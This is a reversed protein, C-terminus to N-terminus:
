LVIDRAKKEKGILVVWLGHMLRAMGCGVDAKPEPSIKAMVKRANFIGRGEKGREGTQHTLKRYDSDNLIKKLAKRVEVDDRVEGDEGIAGTAVLQSFHM